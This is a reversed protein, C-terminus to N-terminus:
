PPILQMVKSMLESVSPRNSPEVQLCLQVLEILDKSYEHHGPVRYRGSCAATASGDFPSDGFAMAYITCGVSWVDVKENIVCDSSVEFLEPARYSSTCQVAAQEQVAIAQKRSTVTLSAESVSGLDTLVIMNNANLMLNGPKIDRHALPPTCAHFVFVAKCLELTWRFIQQEPITDRSSFNRIILDQISGRKLLPFLLYCMKDVNPKTVTAHDLLEMIHQHSVKKYASIEKEIAEVQEELQLRVCKLAYHEGHRNKVEIVFSYGGEGITKVKSYEKGNLNYTKRKRPCVLRCWSM